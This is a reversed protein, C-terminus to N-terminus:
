SFAEIGTANTGSALVRQISGSALEHAEPLDDM